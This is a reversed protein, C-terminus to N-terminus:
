PSATKLLRKRQPEKAEESSSCYKSKALEGNFFYNVTTSPRFNFFYIFTTERHFNLVHDIKTTVIVRLISTAIKRLFKM